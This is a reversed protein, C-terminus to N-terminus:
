KVMVTKNAAEGVIGIGNMAKVSFYYSVHNQLENKLLQQLQLKNIKLNTTETATWSIIDSAGESTGLCFLYGIVGSEPDLATDWSVALTDSLLVDKIPPISPLTSDALQIGDSIGVESWLDIGNRAKVEVYYMKGPLLDKDLRINLETQGGASIWQTVETFNKPSNEYLVRYQYEQIGSEYDVASWEAILLNKANTTNGHDNVSPTTPLTNDSSSLSSEKTSYEFEQGGKPSSYYDIYISSLRELTYGGSGRARIWVNYNGFDHVDRYFPIVITQDNGVTRWAQQTYGQILLDTNFTASTNLLGGVPVVGTNNSLNNIGPLLTLVGPSYESIMMQDISLIPQDGSDVLSVNNTPEVAVPDSYGEISFSYEAIGVPHEGKWNLTLKAYDPTNKDSIARGSLQVIKPVQLIQQINKREKEFDWDKAWERIRTKNIVVSQDQKINNGTASNVTGSQVIQQFSAQNGQLLNSGVYQATNSSSPLSVNGMQNVFAIQNGQNTLNNGPTLVLNEMSVKELGRTGAELSLQDFLDYLITYLKAQRSYIIDCKITFNNWQAQYIDNSGKINNRFAKLVGAANASTADFGALPIHYYLEKGMDIYNTLTILADSPIAYTDSTKAGIQVLKNILERRQDGLYEFRGTPGGPNLTFSQEICAEFINSELNFLQNGKKAYRYNLTGLYDLSHTTYNVIKDYTETYKKCIASVSNNGGTLIEKIEKLKKTYDAVMSILKNHYEDSENKEKLVSKELTKADTSDLEYSFVQISKNNISTTTITPKNVPRKLGTLDSIKPLDGNFLDSQKTLLANLGVEMADIEVIAKAIKSSDELLQNMTNQLEGADSEWIMDFVQKLEPLAVDSTSITEFSSHGSVESYNSYDYYKCYLDHKYWDKFIGGVYAAFKCPNNADSAWAALQMLAMGADKRQEESLIFLANRANELDEALKEMDQKMQKGINRADSILQDIRSNRGTGGDLGNEGITIWLTGNFVTIWCIEVELHGCVYVLCPDCILAGEVGVEAGILGWLVEGWAKGSVYIGWSVNEKWWVMAELRMGGSVVYIDFSAELVTDFLFGQNGVYFDSTAHIIYFCKIDAKGIIGWPGGDYAYFQFFNNNEDASIVAFDLGFQFKGEVYNQVWNFELFAKGKLKDGIANVEADLRFYSNTVVLLAQGNILNNEGIYLGANLFIAWAQEGSGQPKAYSNYGTVSIRKLGTLDTITKIDAETPRYFFGGGVKDLTVIGMQIKLGKLGLYFGWYADGDREGVKGYVTAEYKKVITATGGVGLFQKEPDNVYEIDIKLDITNQVNLEGKKLIFNTNEGIKYVLLKELSGGAAGSNGIKLNAGELLFYSDVSIKKSNNEGYELESKENKYQLKKIELTLVKLITLNGGKIADSINTFNGDEDIGLGEIKIGGKVVDKMNVSLDGTVELKFPYPTVALKTLEISLPGLDLKKEETITIPETSINGNFDITIGPKNTEGIHIPKTTNDKDIYLDASIGIKSHDFDFVWNTDPKADVTTIEQIQGFYVGLYTLDIDGFTGLEVVSKDNDKGSIIENILTVSGTTKGSKEFEIQASPNLGLKSFIPLDATTVTVELFWTNKTKKFELSQLNLYKKKPILPLLPEGNNNVAKLEITLEGNGDKLIILEGSWFETSGPKNLRLGVGMSIKGSGSDINKVIFVLGFATIEQTSIKFTLGNEGISLDNFNVKKGLVQIKTYASNIILKDSGTSYNYSIKEVQIKLIQAYSFNFTDKLAGVFDMKSEFSGESALYTGNVQKKFILNNALVSITDKFNPNSCNIILREYSDLMVESGGKFVEPEELPEIFAVGPIVVYPTVDVSVTSKAYCTVKLYDQTKGSFRNEDKDEGIYETQVYYEASDEGDLADNLSIPLSLTNSQTTTIGGNLPFENTLKNRITKFSIFSGLTKKYWYNAVSDFTITENISGQLSISINVTNELKDPTYSIKNQVFVLELSLASYQFTWIRSKGENSAIPEDNEDLAQVQWAYTKFKEIALADPPYSLVTMTTKDEYHPSNAAIAEEPTQGQALEVIRISYQITENSYVNIVPTWLFTPLASSINEGNMPALLGPPDPYSISFSACSETLLYGNLDVAKICATYKGEPFRGTRVVQSKINANWTTNNWDVLDTSSINRQEPGTTFEIIDSKGKVVEFLTESNINFELIVQAESQGLYQLTYMINNPNNEWDSFYPSPNPPIILTSNWNPNQAYIINSLLFLSLFFLYKIYLM